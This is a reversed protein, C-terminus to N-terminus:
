CFELTIHSRPGDLRTHGNCGKREKTCRDFHYLWQADPDSTESHWGIYQAVGKFTVFSGPLMYLAACCCEIVPLM